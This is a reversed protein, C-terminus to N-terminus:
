KNKLSKIELELKTQKNKLEEIMKQQEKVAEILISTMRSYDVSKYGTEENTYVLAPVVDEVEQAIFGIDKLGSSKWNYTVGRLAQITGLPNTITEINDKFRRDSFVTWANAIANSGDGSTGVTLRTGSSAFGEGIYCNAGSLRFNPAIPSYKIFFNGSNVYSEYTFASGTQDKFFIKGSAGSIRTEGVVELQAQPTYTGVGVKLGALDVTLAQSGNGLFNFRDNTDDYQLGYTPYAASHSIVMRSSNLTGSAFMQIMPLPAAGTAPFTISAQDDLFNMSGNTSSINFKELVGNGIAFINSPTNIGIGLNGTGSKIVMRNIGSTRFNLDVADSTGIFNSGAVTGANGKIGWFGNIPNLLNITNTGVTLTGSTLGITPSPMSVTSSNLGNNIVLNNTTSPNTITYSPSSVTYTTGLQNLIINNGNIITTTPTTLTTPTWTSGIYQLIQGPLPNMSSIPEGQISVVTTSNIPGIADGTLIPNYALTSTNVGNTLVLNNSFPNTLSYSPAGITYSPSAGIISINNNPFSSPTITTSAAPNPLLVTNGNSISLSTGALSLTSTSSVSYNPYSGGISVNSNGPILTVTQNPSSNSIITGSTISIGAGNTYTTGSNLTVSNSLPGSSLVSGSLNLPPTSSFLAYPVSMFLQKTGVLSSNVYVEYAIGNVWNITNFSGTIPTGQGIILNAMGFSNTVVNHNEFYVLPGSLGSYLKFEVLVSTSPLVAGGSNRIISQYNIGLPSQSYVTTLVFVFFLTIIKKM